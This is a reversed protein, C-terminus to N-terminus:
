KEEKTPTIEFCWYTKSLPDRLESALHYLDACGECKVRPKGIAKYSPHKRCRLSLM